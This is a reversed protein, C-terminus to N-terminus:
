YVCTFKILRAIDGASLDSISIYNIDIEEIRLVEGDDISKSIYVKAKDEDEAICYIYGKTAVHSKFWVIYGKM